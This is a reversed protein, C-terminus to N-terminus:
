RENQEIGNAEIESQPIPWTWKKDNPKLSYQVGDLVRSFTVPYKGERNLRRADEWRRGRMFLEKQRETLIYLLLDDIEALKIDHYSNQDFRNKRLFNIDNLALQESGTRAYCEARILLMEEVSLGTFAEIAGKGSYSGIYARTNDPRTFFYVKERLDDPEFSQIFLTDANRRTAGIIGGVTEVSYFIIAPNNKGYVEFYSSGLNSIIGTLKNYDVLTNKKKLVIDAYKLAMDFNGQQLYVRALLAQVATIGPMYPNGGEQVPVMEAESLDKLIQEYVQKVTSRGYKISVDYDLRLPLGPEKDATAEQYPKCFVQALQYLNWARHFRASVKVRDMDGKEDAGSTASEVDLALNAIMIREYGLDWDRLNRENGYANDKWLYAFQHMPTYQSGAILDAGNKVYYEDSGLYALDSSTAYMNNRGLIALYDKATKPVVQNSTRKKDLFDKGCSALTIVLCVILYKKLNKM